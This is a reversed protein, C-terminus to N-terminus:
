KTGLLSFLDVTLDTGQCLNVVSDQGANPPSIIELLFSDQAFCGGGTLFAISDRFYIQTTSTIPLSPDLITGPAFDRNTSYQLNPNSANPLPLSGSECFQRQIVIDLRPSQGIEFVLTDVTSCIGQQAPDFLFLTDLVNSTSNADDFSITDGPFFINGGPIATYFGVTPASPIIQPLILTDCIQEPIVANYNVGTLFELRIQTTDICDITGGSNTAILFLMTIGDAATIEDDEFFSQGFGDPDTNYEFDLDNDNDIVPDPLFISGCATITGSPSIIEPKLNSVVEIPQADFCGDGSEDYIYITSVGDPVTIVSSANMGPVSFDNDLYYQPFVENEVDVLDDIDPLELENGCIDITPM